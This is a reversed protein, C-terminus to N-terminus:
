NIAQSFLIALKFFHSNATVSNVVMKQGVLTQLESRALPAQPEPPRFTDLAYYFRALPLNFFIRDKVVDNNHVLPTGHAQVLRRERSVFQLCKGRFHANGGDSCQALLTGHAQVALAARACRTLSM